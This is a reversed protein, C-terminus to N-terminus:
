VTPKKLRMEKFPTKHTKKWIEKKGEIQLIYQSYFARAKNYINRKGCISFVEGIENRIVNTPFINCWKMGMTGKCLLSALLFLFGQALIRVRVAHLALLVMTFATSFCKSGLGCRMQKEFTTFYSGVKAAIWSTEVWKWSTIQYVCIKQLQQM